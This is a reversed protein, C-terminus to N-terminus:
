GMISPSSAMMGITESRASHKAHDGASDSLLSLLPYEPSSRRGHRSKVMDASQYKGSRKRYVTQEHRRKMFELLKALKPRYWREWEWCYGEERYRDPAVERCLALFLERVM